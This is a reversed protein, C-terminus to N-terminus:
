NRKNEANLMDKAENVKAALYPSGGRDPHNLLMVRKHAESIRETSSSPSVGICICTCLISLTNIYKGLILGAERRTMKTEFGGRYYATFMPSKPLDVAQKQIRQWSRTVMRVSLATAAIGLGALMLTTM